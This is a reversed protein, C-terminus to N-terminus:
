LRTTNKRKAKRANFKTVLDRSAKQAVRLIELDLRTRKYGVSTSESPTFQIM